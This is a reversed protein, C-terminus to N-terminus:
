VFPGPSFPHTEDDAERATIGGDRDVTLRRGRWDVETVFFSAIFLTFRFCDIVPLLWLPASIAGAVRDVSKALIGRTGLSLLVISLGLAPHFAGSLLALPLPNTVISGAYGAPHLRRITTAWRLEHRWLVALGQEACAHVLLLPPVTVRLGVETVACGIAHDDALINAFRDLGGIAVLTPRYLAITSGMCPRALATTLGVIIDPLGAYSITGAALRSWTGADGRGRYLCTVAGIGPQRLMAVVTALYDRDVAMDSDSIVLLDHRASPLMNILNGIKANVGHARPDIVLDIAGGLNDAQLRQVVGIALDQPDRVGCVIQIPADYDQDLFTALNAALRPENGHLPKLITVAESATATPRPRAFFRRLAVAAFLQYACGIVALTALATGLWNLAGM